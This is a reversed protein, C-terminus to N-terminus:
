SITFSRPEPEYITLTEGTETNKVVAYAKVSYSGSVLGKGFVRIGFRYGTNAVALLKYDTLTGGTFLLGYDDTLEWGAPLVVTSFVVASNYPTPDDGYTYDDQVFVAGASGSISPLMSDNIEVMKTVLMDDLRYLVKTAMVFGLYGKEAAGALDAKDSLAALRTGDRYLKADAGDKRLGFEYEVPQTSVTGLMKELTGGNIDAKESIGYSLNSLGLSSWGSRGKESGALQFRFHDASIQFGNGGTSADVSPINIRIQMACNNNSVTNQFYGLKVSATYRDLDAIGAINPTFWRGDFYGYAKGEYVKINQNLNGSGTFLLSDGKSYTYYSEGQTRTFDNPYDEVANFDESFITKIKFKRQYESSLGFETGITLEYTKDRELRQPMLTLVNESITYKEITVANGNQTLAIGGIGTDSLAGDFTVEIGYVDAYLETVSLGSAYCPLAGLLLVVCMVCALVLGKKM